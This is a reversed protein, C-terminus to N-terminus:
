KHKQYYNQLNRFTWKKGYITSFGEDNFTDAIEKLTGGKKREEAIRTVIQKIKEPRYM